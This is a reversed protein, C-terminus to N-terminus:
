VEKLWVCQIFGIYFVVVLNIQHSLSLSHYQNVIWQPLYELLLMDM